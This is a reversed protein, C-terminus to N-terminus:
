RSPGGSCVRGAMGPGTARGAKRLLSVTYPTYGAYESSHVLVLASAEYISVFRRLCCHYPHGALRQGCAETAM